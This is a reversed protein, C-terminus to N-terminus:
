EELSRIFDEALKQNDSTNINRSIIESSAELAISVMEQRIEERAEEKANEIDREADLKMQAVQANAEEIIREREKEAELKAEQVIENATKQSQTILEESRTVNEHARDKAVESQHINDEIYDQRKKILKKVPKYAFIIIIVVMVLFALIQVVFSVWNPILKSLIDDGSIAAFMTM